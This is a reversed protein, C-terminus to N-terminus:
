TVTKNVPDIGIVTGQIKNVGYKSVLNAHSFSLTNISSRKGTLVENSMINSTYSADKELLAVSISKNSWLRIYKAVAAGSMGGGVVVVQFDAAQALKPLLLGSASLGISSTKSIFERRKM